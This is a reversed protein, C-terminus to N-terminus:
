YRHSAPKREARGHVEIPPQRPAAAAPPWTCACHQPRYPTAEVRACGNECVGRCSRQWTTLGRITANLDFVHLSFLVLAPQKTTPLPWSSSMACAWCSALSVVWSAPPTSSTLLRCSCSNWLSLTLPCHLLLLLSCWPFGCQFTCASHSRRRCVRPSRGRRLQPSRHLLVRALLNRPVHHPWCLPRRLCGCLACHLQNPAPPPLTVTCVLTLLRHRAFWPLTVVYMVFFLFGFFGVSSSSSSDDDDEDAGSSSTETRTTTVVREGDGSSRRVTRTVTRRSSVVRQPREDADDIDGLAPRSRASNHHHHHHHKNHSM